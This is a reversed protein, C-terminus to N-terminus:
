AVQAGLIPDLIRPFPVIIPRYQGYHLSEAGQLLLPFHSIPRTTREQLYYAFSKLPM